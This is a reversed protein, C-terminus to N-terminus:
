LPKGRIYKIRSIRAQTKNKDAMRRAMTKHISYDPESMHQYTHGWPFLVLESYTHLTLLSTVNPHATVFDRVRQTEPESFASAGMYTEDCEYPSAGGGGWEYGYNRNLDVGPCDPDTNIRRNKRWYDFDQSRDYETGDPNVNPCIFIERNDVYLTTEEDLGYGETLQHAFYLAAEPTLIERAHHAAVVVVGAEDPEDVLPNDSIKICWIDRGELSLGISFLNTLSPYNAAIQQLDALQEGCDHYEEYGPPMEKAFSLIEYYLGLETLKPLLTKPVWATMTGAELDVQDIAFGLQSVVVRDQYDITYIKVLEREARFSSGAFALAPLVLLVVVLLISKRV